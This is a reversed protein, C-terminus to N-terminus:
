PQYVSINKAQLKYGIDLQADGDVLYLTKQLRQVSIKGEVWVPEYMSNNEFGEPIVVYLMQNPPPPPTHICAGVYPVLLFETILKGKSELPLVYGPLRIMQGELEAVTLQEKIKYQRSLEARKALLGEVDVGTKALKETLQQKQALAKQSITKDKEDLREQIGLIFAVDALQEPALAMFPDEIVMNQPELDVWDLERSSEAWSLQILSSLLLGLIIQRKM